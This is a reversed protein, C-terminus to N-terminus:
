EEAASELARQRVRPHYRGVLYSVLPALLAAAGLATMQILDLDYKFGWRLNPLTWVPMVGWAWAFWAVQVGLTALIILVTVPGLTLWRSLFMGSPGKPRDRLLPYVLAAVAAAVLGAIAAEVMRGNFFSRVLTEENFASLSWRYGHVLFYVGNYLVYYVLTGALAAVLARWSAFGVAIVVLLAAALGALGVWLRERRDFTLREADATDMLRTVQRGHTGEAYEAAPAGGLPEMVYAAHENAFRLRQDWAPRLRPVGAGGVVLNLAEGKSYTPVPMGGLVAITPAIDEQKANGDGMPVGPGFFVGPVEVVSKESGGHGGSPIHGHDAVIVFVTNEGQVGQVLRAIDIDVKGVTERYDDSDGGSRHGANDVDPLHVIALRPNVREILRIAEDVLETSAYFTTPYSRLFSATARKAGYLEVFDEPGVVVSSAGARVASDLLTEAPVAGEFWNTTVGSVSPPAGSLLTTWNPYSLSPQPARLTLDTGYQRLRDLGTMRRSAADGLGDVIVLVTTSAMQSGNAAQPLPLGVYPSEYDVVGNWSYDALLYAGVGVGVCVVLVLGFALWGLVIRSRM